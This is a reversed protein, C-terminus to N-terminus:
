LCRRSKAYTHIQSKRTDYPDRDRPLTQMRMRYENVNLRDHERSIDIKKLHPTLAMRFKGVHLSVAWPPISATGVKDM